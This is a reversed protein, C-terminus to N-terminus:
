GGVATAMDTLYKKSYLINDTTDYFNNTNEQNITVSPKIEKIAAEIRSAMNDMNSNISYELPEVVSAVKLNAEKTQQLINTKEDELAKYEAEMQKIIANNEQEIQYRQEDREIEKLKDLAEQYKQKGEITVANKYKEIDSLTEAKDEARDEVEWSEELASLKDDLLDKVEDMREKAMDLMEDYRDETAKYLELRMEDAQRRAYQQKTPDLSEDQSWKTYEDIKRQYFDTASDDHMFDWGYVGAQKEYWDADDEWESLKDRVADYSKRDLEAEIKVKYAYEEDTLEGLGAFYEEVEKRQRNVAAITDDASMNNYEQENEVWDDSYDLYGDLFQETYDLRTDFYDEWTILGDKAAQVNRQNVTQWVAGMSTGMEGWDNLRAHLDIYAKSANNADDILQQSYKHLKLTADKWEQTDPAFNEDRYVALNNYYEEQSTWGMDLAFEMSELNQSWLEKTYNVIEEEIEKIVEADSAFKQKMQDLWELEEWAPIINYSTKRIHERDSKANEWDENNKGSAYRPIGAGSMIQKTQKATYIKAHEPLPLVVDRGEFIYGRGGYEVLERPDSTGKEDNIMAMGGPFNKDGKARPAGQIEAKYVVTGHLTPASSPFNGKYNAVGPADPVSTPYTGLNYNATGPVDPISTPYTGLTFNITSSISENKFPKDLLEVGSMDGKKVNVTATGTKGDIDAIKNGVEDFIEYNGGAVVEVRAARGDLEGVASNIQEVTPTAGDSVELRVQGTKGDIEAIKNGAQNLVDYNGNANVSVTATKGDIESIKNGAKDLVEYNETKTNLKIDVNKENIEQLKGDIETITSIDGEATIHIRQNDSLVGMSRALENAQETVVELGGNTAAASAIDRFGNKILAAGVATDEASANFKQSTNIYKDVTNNIDAGNEILATGASALSKSIDDAGAGAKAANSAFDSFFNSIGNDGSKAVQAINKFGQQAVTLQETIDSAFKDFGMEQTYSKVDGLATKIGSLAQSYEGNALQEPVLASTVDAVGKVAEKYQEVEASSKDFDASLNNVETQADSLASKLYGIGEDINANGYPDTLAHAKVKDSVGEAEYMANLTKEYSEALENQKKIYEDRPMSKEASKLENQETRYDSMIDKSKALASSYKDVSNQATQLQNDYDKMNSVAQSFDSENIQQQLDGRQGRLDSTARNGLKELTKNLDGDNATLTINYEQEVQAKLEELKKKARDVEETDTSTKITTELQQAESKWGQIKTYTDLSKKTAQIQEDTAKVVDLQADHYEQYAKVGVVAAAGVALIGGAAALAVPGMSALTPAAVGLKGLTEVFNGVGKATGAIVKAGAGMGILGTGINILGQKSDDDMNAIDQAFDKIGGSVNKITPLFTEGIGRAAEVLNNKTVQIQSATTEAKADFENQLATGDEWATNARQLASVMKDYGTALAKMADGERVDNIGVNQLDSIIDESQSLGKVFSNFASSPSEAWAQKFEDASMGSIKSFNDLDEGGQSVANQLKTWTRSVASGGAEADIGLSSLATSYGLVDQASIGVVTGTRGLRLAMSAIDAETTASHNGLDVIASGLNRVERQETGTVNMFKALIAAGEAGNLNTATNMQAMTETFNVIEDTAIGLQGGTAALETLQATTQPIANRGDIGTTTLDIIGQRVKELQPETGDVTKKVNAFNDEFDIAFKASAVGGAALAVSALQIPKTIADISQGAKQWSEGVDQLNLAKEMGVIAKQNQALTKYQQSANAVASKASNYAASERNLASENSLISKSVEDHQKQLGKYENQTWQIAKVNDKYAQSNKNLGANASELAQIEAKKSTMLSGIASKQGNLGKINENLQKTNQKYAKETEALISRKQKLSEASKAVIKDYGGMQRTQEAISKVGKQSMANMGSLESQVKSITSSLSSADGTFRVTLEGLNGSM